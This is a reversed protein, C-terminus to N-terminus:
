RALEVSQVSSICAVVFLFLSRKTPLLDSSSTFHSSSFVAATRHFKLKARQKDLLELFFLIHLILDVYRLPSRLDIATGM